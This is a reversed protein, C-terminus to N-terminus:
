GPRCHSRRLPCRYRPHVEDQVSKLFSFLPPSPQLLIPQLRFLHFSVFLVHALEELRCFSANLLPQHSSSILSSSLSSPPSSSLFTTFRRSSSITYFLLLHHHTCTTHSLAPLSRMVVQPISAQNWRTPPGHVPQQPLSFLACPCGPLPVLPFGNRSCQLVRGSM